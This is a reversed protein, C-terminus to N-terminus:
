VGSAFWFGLITGITTYAFNKDGATFRSSLILFLAVPCFIITLVCQVILKMPFSGSAAPQNPVSANAIISANQVLTQNKAKEAALGRELVAAPLQAQAAEAPLGKRGSAPARLYKEREPSPADAKVEPLYESKSSAIEIQKKAAAVTKASTSQTSQHEYITVGAILVLTATFLAVPLKSM